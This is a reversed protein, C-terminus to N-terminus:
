LHKRSLKLERYNFAYFPFYNETIVSLNEKGLKAVILKEFLVRSYPVYHFYSIDKVFQMIHCSICLYSSLPRYDLYSLVEGGHGEHAESVHYKSIPGVVDENTHVM